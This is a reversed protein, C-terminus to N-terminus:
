IKTWNNSGGNHHNWSYKWYGHKGNSDKVWIHYTSSLGGVTGTSAVTWTARGIAYGTGDLYKESSQPTVWFAPNNNKHGMVVDNASTAKTGNHTYYLEVTLTTTEIGFVSIGRSKTVMASTAAFTSNGPSSTTKEELSLKVPVELNTEDWNIETSETENLLIQSYDDSQLFELFANQEETTLAKFQQLTTQVDEEGANIKDSLYSIYSEPTIKTNQDASVTEQAVFVSGLALMVGLFLALMRKM